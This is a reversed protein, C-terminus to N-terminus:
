GEWLNVVLRLGSQSRDEALFLVIPLYEHTPLVIRDIVHLWHPLQEFRNLSLGCGYVIRPSMLELM